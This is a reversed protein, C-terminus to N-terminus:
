ECCLVPTGPDVSEAVHFRGNPELLLHENFRGGSWADCTFAGPRSVLGTVDLAYANGDDRVDLNVLTPLVLVRGALEPPEAAELYDASRCPVSGQFTEACATQLARLGQACWVSAASPGLVARASDAGAPGPPGQPGEPGRPGEAGQPGAPGQPGQPGAVGAPGQPGQAGAEGQPGQAGAPGAPGPEGAPGQPGAPGAPGAPGQVGAIGQEGRPGQEGTPGQVGTPGSARVGGAGVSADPAGGGGGSGATNDDCAVLALALIAFRM